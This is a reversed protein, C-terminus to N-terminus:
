TCRLAGPAATYCLWWQASKRAAGENRTCTLWCRRVHVKTFLLCMMSFAALVRLSVPRVQMGLLDATNGRLPRLLASLAMGWAGHGPAARVAWQQRDVVLRVRASFLLVVLLLVLAPAILLTMTAVTAALFLALSPM